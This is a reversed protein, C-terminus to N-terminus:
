GASAPLMEDHVLVNGGYKALMAQVMETSDHAGLHVTVAISGQALADAHHGAVHSPVGRDELYGAAGGVVAGGLTAAGAGAIAAWLPGAALIIGVGPITLAAAGALLGLALGAVSGEAAGRLADAPTTTTIGREGEAAVPNDPRALTSHGGQRIETASNMDTPTPPDDTQVFMFGDKDKYVSPESSPGESVDDSTGPTAVSIQEAKIGHDQLAGIARTAHDPDIFAASVYSHVSAPNMM